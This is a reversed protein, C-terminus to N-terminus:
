GLLGQRTCALTAVGGIDTLVARSGPRGFSARDFSSRGYADHWAYAQNAHLDPSGAVADLREIHGSALRLLLQSGQSSVHVPVVPAQAPASAGRCEYAGDNLSRLALTEVDPILACGNLGLVM